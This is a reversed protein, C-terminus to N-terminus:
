AARHRGAAVGLIVGGRRHPTPAAVDDSRTTKTWDNRGRIMRAVARWAALYGIYNWIIMLHGLVLARGLSVAHTRRAYIYGIMLNPAFSLVYWLLAYTM